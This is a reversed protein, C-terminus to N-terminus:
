YYKKCFDNKTIILYGPEKLWKEKNSLIEKLLIGVKELPLDYKIEILSINNKVCYQKKLDDRILLNGFTDEGGFYNVPKYHQMGQYEICCNYEPLYFDFKLPHPRYQGVGYLGEFTKQTIYNISLDKFYKELKLEGESTNCKPCIIERNRNSYLDNPIKWFSGHEPCILEIKTKFNIYDVKSYDYKDGWISKLWEVFTKTNWNTHAKECNPCHPEHDKLKKIDNLLANPKKFFHHGCKKCIIEVKTKNDKFQALSFDFKYGLLEEFYIKYEEPTKRYNKSCKACGQGNLHAVPTQWFFEQCKKCFIKVKIECNIYEVESYDYKNGHVERARRIFEELGLTHSEIACDKCGLSNDRLLSTVLAQKYGHHICKYIIPTTANVYITESFDLREKFKENLKPLLYENWYKQAKLNRKYLKECIPCPFKQSERLLDEPKIHVEGHDPCIVTVRKAAKEYVVQSFDYLSYTDLYKNKLLELFESNNKILIPSKRKPKNNITNQM